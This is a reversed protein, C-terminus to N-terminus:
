INNEDDIRYKIVQFGVPNKYRDDISMSINANLFYSLTVIKNFQNNSFGEETLRFRVQVVKLNPRSALDQKVVDKDIDLFQVSKVSLNTMTNSSYKKAPSDNRIKRLFDSYVENDSMLRILDNNKQFDMFSYTERAKVYQLIFYKNIAENSEIENMNSTKLLSVSGNRDDIEVVFPKVTKSLTIDKILYLGYLSTAILFFIVCILINRQTYLVYYRDKYWNRVEAVANGTKLKFIKETLYNNKM